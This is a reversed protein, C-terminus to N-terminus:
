LTDVIKCNKTSANTSSSVLWGDIISQSNNSYPTTICEIKRCRNRDLKLLGEKKERESDGM